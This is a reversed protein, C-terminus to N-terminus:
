DKRTSVFPVLANAIIQNPSPFEDPDVTGVAFPTRGPRWTFTGFVVDWLTIGTAHNGAEELVTSHHLRHHEPGMVLWNLAGLRFDANAHVAFSQVTLFLAAVFVAEAAFGLVLLPLTKAATSFAVNLFHVTNNNFANVKTPAHHVGHIRWLWPIDHSKRHLWYGALDAIVIALPAAFVIPLNSAGWDLYPAVWIALAAVGVQTIADVAGNLGFYIGDRMWERLSPQWDLDYPILREFLVLLTITAFLALTAVLSLNQDTAIAWAAVGLVGTLLAPYATYRALNRLSPTTLPAPSLQIETTM